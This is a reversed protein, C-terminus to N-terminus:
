VNIFIMKAAWNIAADMTISTTITNLAMRVEVMYIFPPFSGSQKLLIHKRQNGVSCPNSDEELCDPSRLTRFM